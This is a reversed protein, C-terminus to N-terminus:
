QIPVVASFREVAVARAPRRFGAIIHKIPCGNGTEQLNQFGTATKKYIAGHVMTGPIQNSGTIFLGGDSLGAYIHNIVTSFEPESFCPPNLVNMVRIARAQEKFPQLLDHETIVFRSDSRALNLVRKAVLILQKPHAKGARHERLLPSVVLVQAMFRALHNIPYKYSERGITNFVFPPWVVEFIRGERNITVTGHRNELVYFAVNADSAIYRVKAFAGALKEFFEVATRGDSVGLDQLTWPENHACAKKLQNLVLSDFGEFRHNYTRKYIGREDVFSCLIRESFVDADPEDQVQDYLTISINRKHNLSSLTSCRKLQSVRYIGAKIM